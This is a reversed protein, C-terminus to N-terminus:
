RLVAERYANLDVRGCQCVNGYDLFIHSWKGDDRRVCELAAIRDPTWEDTMEDAM